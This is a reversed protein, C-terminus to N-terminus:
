LAMLCARLWLRVNRRLPEQEKPMQKFGVVMQTGRLGSKIRQRDGAALIVYVMYGDQELSICWERTESGKCFTIRCNLGLKNAEDEFVYTPDINDSM